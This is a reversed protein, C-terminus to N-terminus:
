GVVTVVRRAETISKPSGTAIIQMCTAISREHAGRDTQQGALAKGLEEICEEVLGELREEEPYYGEEDDDDYDAEEYYLHSQAFIETVLTEYITAAGLVDGPLGLRQATPLM